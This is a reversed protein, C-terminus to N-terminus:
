AQFKKVFIEGGVATAFATEVLDIGQDLTIMFRTM